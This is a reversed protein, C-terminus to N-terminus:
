TIWARRCRDYDSVMNLFYGNSSSMGQQEFIASDGDAPWYILYNRTFMYARDELDLNGNM